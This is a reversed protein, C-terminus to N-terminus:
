KKEEQRKEEIRGIKRVVETLRKADRDWFKQFEPADLYFVPTEISAMTQRFQPDNVAQRAASRLAAMVPEPTGAPAFLGSWIYFEADYGLERFTPLEPMASLRTEGWSGLARLKGAKIHQIVTGPGTALADVHGGLVAIIAPGAGTYPVHHLKIDAALGLMEMAVHLTGYVGSSSYTIADPRRRADDVFDKVTKWPSDTRVVLITPDASILAVPVLDKLQYMPARELLHDAEPIVSISSLAMLLTYGDPKAKAVFAMGIGGGAGAKNEVIIKQKLIKEMAAATPRGTLDAVGGPPFPVVMTIPKAPYADDAFSAPSWAAVLALAVIRAYKLMAKASM